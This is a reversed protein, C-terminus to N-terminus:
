GETLDGGVCLLPRRGLTAKEVEILGGLTRVLERLVGARLERIRLFVQSGSTGFLWTRWLRFTHYEDPEQEQAHGSSVRSCHCFPRPLGRMALIQSTGAHKSNGGGGGGLLSSVPVPLSALM